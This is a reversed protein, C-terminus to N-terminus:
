HGCTAVGGGGHYWVSKCEPPVYNVWPGSTGNSDFHMCTWKVASNNAITPCLILSVYGPFNLAIDATRGQIEIVCGHSLFLGNVYKINDTDIIPTIGVNSSVLTGVDCTGLPGVQDIYQSVAAQASGAVGLMAAVRTRIMYRQYTSVALAALVAMIAITVLLEIITFGVLQKIYSNKKM